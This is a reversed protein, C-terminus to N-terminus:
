KLCGPAFISNKWPPPLIRRAGFFDPNCPSNTAGDSFVRHHVPGSKNKHFYVQAISTNFELSITNKKFICQDLHINLLLFYFELLIM